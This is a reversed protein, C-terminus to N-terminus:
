LVTLSRREAAPADRYPTSVPFTQEPAPQALPVAVGPTELLMEGAADGLPEEQVLAVFRYGRSRVTQVLQPTSGSDGLAKRVEMICSALTTEEVFQGPWVQELLEQKTVVRHRHALLYTLVAFAKPRLAQSAGARQLEYCLTDLVYAGFCYRM